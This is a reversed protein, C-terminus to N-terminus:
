QQQPRPIAPIILNDYKSSKPVYFGYSTNNAHLMATKMAQRTNYEESHKRIIEDQPNQSTGDNVTAVPTGFFDRQGQLPPTRTSAPRKGLSKKLPTRPPPRQPNM